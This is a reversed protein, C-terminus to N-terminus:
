GGQTLSTVRPSEGVIRGDQILAVRNAYHAAAPDHTVMVITHGSEDCLQRLLKLIKEAAQSDLNGTPEDALVIAPERVLARAIAVRQQEGGSLQEPKHTSRDHLGVRRLMQEVRARCDRWRKGDILLPLAVNEETTLTPLLSFFQFVFGIQYEKRVAKAELIMM